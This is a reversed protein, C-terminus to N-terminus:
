VAKKISPRVVPPRFKPGCTLNHPSLRVCRSAPLLRVMSRFESPENKPFEVTPGVVRGYVRARSAAPLSSRLSVARDPDHRLARRIHCALRLPTDIPVTEIAPTALAVPACGPLNWIWPVVTPIRVVSRREPRAKIKTGFTGAPFAM